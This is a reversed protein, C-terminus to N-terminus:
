IEWFSLILRMGNQGMQLFIILRSLELRIELCLNLKCILKVLYISLNPNFVLALLKILLFHSFLEMTSFKLEVM